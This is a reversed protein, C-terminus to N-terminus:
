QEKTRLFADAASQLGETLAVPPKWALTERTHTIDVQLSTCLRQAVARKGLIAATYELLSAPVPVLRPPKNLAAAMQRLLSTTSIDEGDSVLFVQNAAAPHTITTVILHVLNDLALLSRKNHISGLPLPIGRNLWGMMSSFNGKVGPGYVLVPRIIVVEMGTAQALVRLAEEAEWKSISYPDSPAPLDQATFPSGDKSAEGNVKISSLFIFRKVGAQAAQRALNLTGDVNIRRYEALPDKTTENMVHVRAACHVVVAVGHLAKSWRTDADLTGIVHHEAGAHPAPRRSSSCVSYDPSTALTSALASGIFGTAGTVMVKM